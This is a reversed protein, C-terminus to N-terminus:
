ADQLQLKLAPSVADVTLDKDGNKACLANKNIEQSSGAVGKAEKVDHKEGKEDNVNENSQLQRSLTKLIGWTRSVGNLTREEQSLKSLRKYLRRLDDIEDIDPFSDGIMVSKVGSRTLAQLQSVCTTSDSWVVGDFVSAPVDESLALGVYGGDLAPLIMADYGRGASVTQLLNRIDFISLDVCDSGVFGVTGSTSPKLKGAISTTDTAPTLTSGYSNKSLKRVRRLAAKLRDGLDTSTPDNDGGTMPLLEWADQLMHSELLKEFKGRAELPAYLLIRHVGDLTGYRHLLDELMAMAFSASEKYGIVKGLRTKSKNPMPYKAVMVLTGLDDECSMLRCSALVGM